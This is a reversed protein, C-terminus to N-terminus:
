FLLNATIAGNSGDIVRGDLVRAVPVEEYEIDTYKFSLSFMPSLQLEYALVLGLADDFEADVDQGFDDHFDYQVDTHYTLGIGLRHPATGLLVMVDWPIRDFEADGNDADVSDFQYGVSTRLAMDGVLLPFEIGGGLYIGGGAELDDDAGNDYEVTALDDGGFHFGATLVLKPADPPQGGYAPSHAMAVSSFLTMSVVALCHLPLKM